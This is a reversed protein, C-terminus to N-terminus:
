ARNVGRNNLNFNKLTGNKQNLLRRYHFTVNGVWNGNLKKEAPRLNSGKTPCYRSGLFAIFSGKGDWDRQAHQITQICAKRYNKGKIKKLIGYNPNGEAIRISSALVEINVVESGELVSCPLVCFVSLVIVFLRSMMPHNGKNTSRYMARELRISSKENCLKM